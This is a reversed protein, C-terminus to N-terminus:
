VSVYVRVDEVSTRVCMFVHKDVSMSTRVCISVSMCECVYVCVRVCECISEYVCM